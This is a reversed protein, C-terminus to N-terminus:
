KSFRRYPRYSKRFPIVFPYQNPTTKGIVPNYLLGYGLGRSVDLITAPKAQKAM